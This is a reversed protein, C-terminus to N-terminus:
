KQGYYADEGHKRLYHKDILSKKLRSAKPNIQLTLTAMKALEELVISNHVAKMATRGWTFPGHRAVLVMEIEVPSLKQFTQLIQNGTELEYDGQIMEDSMVETCPIDTALYDAHTTGLIPIPKMTQAWSTAYTSHIHCIGGIGQFNKYLVIHTRTDSSPNLKGTIKKGDLDMVVMDGPHLQHYPVGSPKIALVSRDPDFASVNGFTQIVLGSQFLAMNAEWAEQQLTKDPNM